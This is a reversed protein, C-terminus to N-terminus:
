ATQPLHAGQPQFGAENAVYTVTYVVNDPGTYSFSGRVEIAENETGVNKLQATEQASKGDSTEVAYNYGDVGINESEYRLITADRSNTSVPVAVAAAAFLALVVFSKM